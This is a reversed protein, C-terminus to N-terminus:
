PASKLPFTTLARNFYTESDLIRGDSFRIQYPQGTVSSRSACLRIFDEATRVRSGAARLKLRLHEGATKGDYDQGNRIFKAGRLAEVSSILHQIRAAESNELGHAQMFWLLLFPLCLLRVYKMNKEDEPPQDGTDKRLRKKQM